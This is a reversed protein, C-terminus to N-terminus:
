AAYFVSIAAECELTMKFTLYYKRKNNQDKIM